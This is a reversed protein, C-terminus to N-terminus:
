VGADAAVVPVEVPEAPALEADKLFQSVAAVLALVLAVAAGITKKNFKM